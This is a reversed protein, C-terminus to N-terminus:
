WWQPSPHHEWSSFVVGREEWVVERTGTVLELTWSFLMGKSHGWPDDSRKTQKKGGEQVGQEVAELIILRNM